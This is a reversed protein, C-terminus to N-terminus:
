TGEPEHGPQHAWAPLPEKMQDRVKAFAGQRRDPAMRRDPTQRRDWKGYGICLMEAPSLGFVHAMLDLDEIQFPTTGTLRKSLWPQSRQLREAFEAQTWNRIDMLARVNARLQDNATLHPSDDGLAMRLENILM